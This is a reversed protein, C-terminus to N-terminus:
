SKTLYVVTFAIGRNFVYRAGGESTPDRPIIRGGDYQGCECQSLEFTLAEQKYHNRASIDSMHITLGWLPHKMFKELNRKIEKPSDTTNLLAQMFPVGLEKGGEKPDDNEDNKIKRLWSYQPTQLSASSGCHIPM